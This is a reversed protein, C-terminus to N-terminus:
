KFRKIVVKGELSSNYKITFRVFERNDRYFILTYEENSSLPGLKSVLDYDCICKCQPDTESEVITINNGEVSVDSKITGPCCNFVANVHKIHLYGGALAHYEISEESEASKTLNTVIEKCGQYSFDEIKIEEYLNDRNCGAGGILFCLALLTILVTKTKM